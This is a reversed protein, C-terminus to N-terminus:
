EMTDLTQIKMGEPDTIRDINAAIDEPTINEFTAGLTKALMLKSVMGGGCVLVEGNLPCSEHALYAVGPSVFAPKLGEMFPNEFMEAPADYVLSLAHPDSM